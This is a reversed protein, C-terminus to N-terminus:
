RAARAASWRQRLESESYANEDRIVLDHAVYYLAVDIRDLPVGHRRHYALRYLALQLMREEREAPTAPARGTKWDVIEVRGDDGQFVADLKCVVIHEEDDAPDALLFHIESEVEVPSRNAWESREFAEQLLALAAHDDPSAAAAPLEDGREEDSEWLADDLSAAGASGYRQEVWGHFLTGLATQPYPQEPMPRALQQVTGSFDTVYDKFRSAPIRTPARLAERTRRAEREALLLALEPAPAADEVGRVLAAAAEIAPRRAGLPDQPWSLTHGAGDRPTRDNQAPPMEGLGLAEAISVLYPSPKRPRTQTAWWSGSLLLEGRARTVAVYALRREEAEHHARMGDSFSSIAKDIVGRSLPETRDWGVEPLAERDGRFVHPLEGLSLWGRVSRPTTPLEEHVCRVVAVADWELGKSGHITLLQVVGPEPPEPRPRLEDQAEAHDLWALLAGITERESSALFGRVEEGFTRLAGMAQRAPGRAENAALEVDLRLELEIQRLLEPLPARAGLRLRAFMEGAERLRQRGADTFGALLRYGPDTTRLFELADVISVAEDPGASGRIRALLEADLPVLAEDRRALTKALHHLASLDVVGIAFRPGALIRILASGQAPDDIVRLVAVVDTVEPTSLLGGLGLIRHPIGRAALAEAFRPMHKKARFLIAGTHETCAGGSAAHEARVGAFWDAVAAAEDEITESYVHRVRGPGAESRPRLPPVPLRPEDQRDALLANAADLILRDNRWSVSLDFRRALGSPSFAAAFAALNDASAGRWGYIAQNPDGVAMVPAEAFLSALLQTQIVSTDQYEDLLVVRYQARLEAAIDPSAEIVDLASAVQDAYDFVGRAAKARAYEGALRAVLSLGSTAKWASEPRGDSRDPEIHPLVEAAWADGFAAVEDLDARHDLAAGALSLMSETLTQPNIDLEGLREDTSSLVIRRALLWAASESLLAADPDRGIRAAHERALADAFSNYTAVRPRLLLDSGPTQDGSAAVGYRRALGDLLLGREEAQVPLGELVGSAVLEPVLPLLGRRAYEDVRDLRRAIREALEGAAKRTFTLGLVEERRVHGNAVLWVVRGAMTETKGSGAGAVVLAPVPPAEIVARQEETPEPLGLAAAIEIASIRGAGPWTTDPATM